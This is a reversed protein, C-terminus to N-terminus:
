RFHDYGSIKIEEEKDERKLIYGSETVRGILTIGEISSEPKASTFLLEYEEGSKLVYDTIRGSDGGCFFSVEEHIPFLGPELIFGTRSESCIHGLDSLLGDSIDVMSTPSFEDLIANLMSGAPDPTLHKKIAGPYASTDGNEQLLELGLRSLGPKGTVYIFDGPKAGNRYVPSSAEGYISISIVLKDSKSIDGGAIFTGNKSASSQLGEYLEDIQQETITAPLGLAVLVILPKGGMAYIDSVNASMSRYGADHYSTYSLDFHINEFSVDTSFLGYRGESITYVACDDGIGVVPLSSSPTSGIKEKIRNIIDWESTM